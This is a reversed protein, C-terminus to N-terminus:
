KKPRYVASMASYFPFIDNKVFDAFGQVFGGQAYGKIKKAKKVRGGKKMTALPMVPVFPPPFLGPRKKKMFPNNVPLPLVIDRFM